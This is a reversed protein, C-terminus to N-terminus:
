GDGDDSTEGDRGTVAWKSAARALSQAVSVLRTACGRDSSSTGRQLKELEGAPRDTM